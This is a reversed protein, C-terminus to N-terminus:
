VSSTHMTKQSHGNRSNDTEKNQYDYKSYGLEEDIEQDLVGELIEGMSMLTQKYSEAKSKLNEIENKTSQLGDLSQKTNKISSDYSLNYKDSVAQIAKALAYTATVAVIAKGHVTDLFSSMKNSIKESGRVRLFQLQNGGELKVKKSQNYFEKLPM